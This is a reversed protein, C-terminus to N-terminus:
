RSSGDEEEVIEGIWSFNRQVQVKINQKTNDFEVRPGAVMQIGSNEM